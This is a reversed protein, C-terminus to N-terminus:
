GKQDQNTDQVHNPKPFSEQIGKEIDVEGEELPNPRLDLLDEFYDKV